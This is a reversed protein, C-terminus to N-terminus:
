PAGGETTEALEAAYHGRACFLAAEFDFNRADSWHMLDALLDGLSDEYDCDTMERFARIAKDAWAARDLNTPEFDTTM